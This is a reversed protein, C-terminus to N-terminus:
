RFPAERPPKRERIPITMRTDRRPQNKTRTSQKIMLPMVGGYNGTACKGNMAAIDGKRNRGTTATENMMLTDMRGKNGTALKQIMMM